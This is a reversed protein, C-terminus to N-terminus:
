RAERVPPLETPQPTVRAGPRVRQLGAIVISETGDLGERIVRYGDHRPGPRVVRPNVMGQADVVWVIRRDLDSAIAEDPVLVARYPNGGPVQVRGFMGPALFVDGNTVTARIRMTGTAQDLRSDVFDVLGKREMRREDAVGILVEIQGPRERPNPLGGATRVSRAYALYAREDIDFYFKIPDLTVITALLSQDAAVLNGESVLKRGIRGSIPAKVDTFGVNLRATELEARLGAIDAQAQLFQQRTQELQREPATGTRALREYREMDSRFFDLRTQAANVAAQARALVANYTRKDIVFLTEGERVIQGDRFRVSELYGSVRARLDVSEAAEFRGIFEDRDVIEKVVPKAVTVPPPPGGPGMQAWASSVCLVTAAAVAALSPVVRM